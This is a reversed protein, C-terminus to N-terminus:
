GTCWDDERDTNQPNSGHWTIIGLGLNALQLSVCRISSSWADASKPREMIEPGLDLFDMLCFYIEPSAQEFKGWGIPKPVFDPMNSYIEAMSKHEGEMM